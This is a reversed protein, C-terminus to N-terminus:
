DFDPADPVRERNVIRYNTSNLADIRDMDISSLTFDMVDFNAQINERRTSMTNITVGKQLIWRLAAQAATKGYGAGIEEFLPYKFIEGRAVSCYSSLPIGTETATRLLVRQDLLPHFEVQNTILPLTTAAQATRMMAATFNSIGIHRALGAQVAEELRQVSPAVDGHAPPWHLLLIDVQDIQLKALSARLSPLFAEANDNAPAIKTTICLDERTVGVAQLATGVDAENGYMQATDIARYGTDVAIRLADQLAQGQLPWTGFARQHTGQFLPNM